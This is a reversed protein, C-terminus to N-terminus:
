VFPLIVNQLMLIHIKGRRERAYGKFGGGNLFKLYEMSMAGPSPIISCFSLPFSNEQNQLKLLKTETPLFFFGALIISQSSYLATLAPSATGSVLYTAKDPTISFGSNNIWLINSAPRAGLLGDPSRNERALSLSM